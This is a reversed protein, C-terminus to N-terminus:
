PVRPLGDVLKRCMRRDDASWPSRLYGVWDDIDLVPLLVSGRRGGEVQLGSASLLFIIVIASATALHKLTRRTMTDSADVDVWRQAMAQGTRDRVVLDWRITELVHGQRLPTVVLEGAVGQAIVIEKAEAIVVPEMEHSRAFPVVSHTAPYGSQILLDTVDKWVHRVEDRTTRRWMRELQAQVATRLADIDAADMIGRNGEDRTLSEAGLTAAIYSAIARVVIASERNAM